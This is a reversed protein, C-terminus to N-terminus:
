DMSAAPNAASSALRRRNAITTIPAAETRVTTKRLLPIASMRAHEGVEQELINGDRAPGRLGIRDGRRNAEQGGGVELEQELGRAGGRM